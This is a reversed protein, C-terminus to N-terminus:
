LVCALGGAIPRNYKQFWPLTDAAEAVVSVWSVSSRVVCYVRWCKATTSRYLPVDSCGCGFVCQLYVAGVATYFHRQVDRNPASGGRQSEDRASVF